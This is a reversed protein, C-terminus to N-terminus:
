GIVSGPKLKRDLTVLSLSGDEDEGCLLMGASQVGRIKRPELNELLVIQRGPLDEANYYEAIGSVIVRPEAEGINLTLKLLRDAGEVKEAEAIEAAILRLKSFDQYKILAVGEKKAEKESAKAAKKEAKAKEKAKKAAKKEQEALLGDLWDIEEKLDLRPFLPKTAKIAESTEFLGFAADGLGVETPCGLSALIKASTEPMFPNLLVATVRLSECLNGLVAALRAAKSEDKGLKWPETEDIYKNARRILRWVAALAHSFQMKELYGDVEKYVEAALESLEEDIAETEREEPLVGDFYKALMATSRSLLNGLDNALDSNIREVLAENTFNGDLGFPVERLLFYRLSDVGYRESLIVPDVVNGKSKSMKSENMLLWGHAFVHKPLPLDLAMLMAPWIISHFRVIEKAMLHVDAPWYRALDGNKDEPYGLATIYNSLADIWVYIVHKPDFPVKVGWDFSTRSVALDDLGQEIFRIMENRSTEPQLFDPHEDFYKLLPEAYESLRFFYSEEKTKDVKRGCDPCHGDNLQSETWFSECPTCYWGEYSGKYIKGKDYLKQFIEAVAKEHYDDTTRIFRDYSINLLKWLDKIGVAMRDVFAQPDEGAERAVDQIKQGHEDMGTLFMVDKGKLRQFRAVTDAAVTSYSHGIHLKDSPYYIPTTIYFTERDAM